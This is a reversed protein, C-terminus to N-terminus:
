DLCVYPLISLRGDDGHPDLSICQTWDYWNGQTDHFGNVGPWHQEHIRTIDANTVERTLGPLDTPFSNPVLVHTKRAERKTSEEEKLCESMFYHAGPIQANSIGLVNQQTNIYSRIIENKSLEKWNTHEFPSQLNTKPDPTDVETRHQEVLAPSETQLFDKQTLPKIQGTLPDFTLKREKLKVSGRGSGEVVPGELNVMHHDKARSKHKKKSDPGSAPDDSDMKSSDPSLGVRAMLMEGSSPGGTTKSGHPTHPQPTGAGHWHPGEPTGQEQRLPSASELRKSQMPPTFPQSVCLPSAAQAGETCHTRQSPSSLSGKPAYSTHQRGLAEQRTTRPSCSSGRPSKPQHLVTGEAKEHQQLVAAKLLSTNSPKVLGPSSTHPRVANVPIKSHKDNESQEARGRDGGSLLSGDPPTPFPSEPSGGIGNTPPSSNQVPEHSTKSVKSPPAQLGDKHDGKRKRTGVKDSKPSNLRQIDNRSKLEQVPKTGVPTTVPLPEQKCMPAGGNASGPPIPVRNPVADGQIVPEILKQWNRLLKKARKALDENKTKKRVDNILKGLRTEELAEKTIPFKELSSIVELVAVMNKINSQADIAQLLRDRIQQPTAPAATM